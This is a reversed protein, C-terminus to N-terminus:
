RIESRKTLWKRCIFSYSWNGYLIINLAKFIFYTLHHKPTLMVSYLKDYFLNCATNAFYFFLTGAVWWFEPAYRLDIHHDSQLLLYYYYLSYFVFQVSMVTYALYNYVFFTHAIIGYIYLTLFLALGIIVKPKSNIHQGFLYFFMLHTFGAEFLIFINYVWHNNHTQHGIYLGYIEAACTILLYLVMSRWVPSVDKTLCMLAVIFCIIESVTNVTFLSLM